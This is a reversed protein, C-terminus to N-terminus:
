PMGRIWVAVARPQLTAGITDVLAATAATPDVEDRLRQAFLEATRAADYGERNFRRDVASQVRRLVPRVTGAAALTAGAVALTSSVPLVQPISTVVLGYVAAVVVTVLAYSISRSILRDIEYLGHRTIAIACAVPLFSVAIPLVSDGIPLGWIQLDAISDSFGISLAAAVGVLGAAFAFWQLQRRESGVARATRLVVGVAAALASVGMVGLAVVALPSDEPSPLWTWSDPVAPNDVILGREADILRPQLASLLTLVTSGTLLAGLVWRWAPTWLGYPFLLLPLLTLTLTPIWSVWGLWALWAAGTDAVGGAFRQDALASAVGCTLGVVGLGLWIWGLANGPVRGSLFLGVFAASLIPLLWASSTIGVAFGAILLAVLSGGALGRVILLWAGGSGRRTNL